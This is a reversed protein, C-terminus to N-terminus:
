SLFTILVNIQCFEIILYQICVMLQPSSDDNGESLGNLTVMVFHTVTKRANMYIKSRPFHM